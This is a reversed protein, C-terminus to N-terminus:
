LFPARQPVQATAWFRERRAMLGDFLELAARDRKTADAGQPRSSEGDLARCGRTTAVRWGAPCDGASGPQRQDRAVPIPHRGHLRCRPKV